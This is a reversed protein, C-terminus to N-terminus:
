SDKRLIDRIESLLVELAPPDAPVTVEEERKISGMVKKIVIFLSAAIILLNFITNIFTGYAIVAGMEQAKELNGRPADEAFAFHLQSFDPLKM